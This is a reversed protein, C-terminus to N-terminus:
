GSRIAPSSSGPSPRRSSEGAPYGGRPGPRGSQRGSSAAGSPGGAPRRRREGPARGGNRRAFRRRGWIAAFDGEGSGYAERVVALMVASAQAPPLERPFVGRHKLLRVAFDYLTMISAGAASGEWRGALRRLLHERLENSPVLVVDERGRVRGFAEPIRTLLREELAPFPGALLRSIEHKREEMTEAM